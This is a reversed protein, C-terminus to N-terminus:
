DEEVAAAIREAICKMGLDNPHKAVGGHWFEKLAKCDDREGLDDIPIYRFGRKDAVEKIPVDFPDYRWFLSTVYVRCHDNRFFDIMEEFCPAYAVTKVKETDSNEGIRIIVIDADFEKGERFAELVSPDYFRREWDAAHVICYDIAGFKKELLAVTQHVYDKEKCSAAMGCDRFWGIDEKVGHRTISNGVFLVKKAPKGCRITEVLRFTDVQNEASVTNKEFDSNNM